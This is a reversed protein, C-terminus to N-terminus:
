IMDTLMQYIYIIMGLIRRYDFNIKTTLIEKKLFNNPQSPIITNIVKKDDVM